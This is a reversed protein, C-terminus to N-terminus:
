RVGPDILKGHDVDTFLPPVWRHWTPVSVGFSHTVEQPLTGSALLKRADQVKIDTM